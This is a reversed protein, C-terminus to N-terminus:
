RSVWIPSVWISEEDIQTGRIYYVDQEAEPNDSIEGAAQCVSKAYAKSFKVAPSLPGGVHKVVSSALLQAWSMDMKLGNCSFRLQTKPGAQLTLIVANVGSTMTRPNHMFTEPIGRTTSSWALSTETQETIRHPVEDDPTKLISPRFCPEVALLRGELVKVCNHWQVWRDKRGWGWELKVNYIDSSQQEAEEASQHHIVKGNKVIELYRFPQNGTLKYSISRSADAKIESGLPAGNIQFDALIKAGSVAVTRRDRIAQWIDQRTKAQACAGTRGHSYHGPFGDHSDTSGLFGFKCGMSLGYQATHQGDRPGMSHYYDFPADESVACGHNSYIEIPGVLRSRGFAEWDIGRHNSSYGIHHPVLLYDGPQYLKEFDGLDQAEALDLTNKGYLNYDGYRNSHWEYSLFTVLDDSNHRNSLELYEPWYKRCKAFGALHMSIADDYEKLDDPMDPWFAHGTVSCFDLHTRAIRFARDMTGRGYSLNSHCHLDGWYWKM